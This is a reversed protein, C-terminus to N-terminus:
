QEGKKEELAKELEEKHKKKNRVEPNFRVGLKVLGDRLRKKVQALSDQPGIEMVLKEGNLIQGSFTTPNYVPTYFQDVIQVPTGIFLGNADKTYRIRTIM